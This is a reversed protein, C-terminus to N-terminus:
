HHDQGTEIFSEASSRMTDADYPHEDPIEALFFYALLGFFPVLLVVSWILRTALRKHCRKMWIRIVAILAVVELASLGIVEPATM